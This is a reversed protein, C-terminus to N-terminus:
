IRGGVTFNLDYGRIVYGSNNHGETDRFEFQVWKGSGELLISELPFRIAGYQAEGYIATGFRAASVVPALEFPEPQVVNPSSYDYRVVLDLAAQEEAELYITLSHCRKRVQSDSLNVFPGTYISTFKTGNFTLGSQHNFVQSASCHYVVAREDVTGAYIHDVEMDTTTTWAFSRDDQVTGILGRRVGSVDYYFMRYQRKEPIVCSSINGQFRSIGDMLTDIFETQLDISVDGIRETAGLYRLGDNALFLIDGAVEQISNGDVCGVKTTVPEVVAQAANDLNRVRYISERCFVYLLDRFVTLGTIEDQVQFRWSGTGNFTTPDFRTSVAAEGPKGNMGAVVVHDQYVTVFQAGELDLAPTCETDTYVGPSTEKIVRPAGTQADTVFLVELDAPILTVLECRATGSMATSVAQWTVTDVQLHYIDSGRVVVPRDNFIHVGRIDTIGPPLPAIASYGEIRRYGGETLAEYNSLRLAWGPKNSIVSPPTALDLGGKSNVVFTQM